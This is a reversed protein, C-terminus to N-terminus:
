DAIKSQLYALIDRSNYLFFNLWFAQIKKHNFIGANDCTHLRTGGVFAAQFFIYDVTYPQLMESKKGEQRLTGLRAKGIQRERKLDSYLQTKHM